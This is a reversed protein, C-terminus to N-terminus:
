GAWAPDDFRQIELVNGDPDLAFCQYIGYTPNHAPELTITAGAARLRDAVADVDDLVLTLIVGGTAGVNDPRVCVGIYATSAARLITCGAQEVVVECGLVDRYFRVAAELDRCPLFTIAADFPVTM